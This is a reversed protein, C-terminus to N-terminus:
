EGGPAERVRNAGSADGGDTDTVVGIIGDHESGTTGGLRSNCLGSPHKNRVTNGAAGIVTANIGGGNGNIAITSGNLTGFVNQIYSQIQFM